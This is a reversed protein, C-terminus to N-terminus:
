NIWRFDVIGVLVDTYQERKFLQKILLSITETNWCIWHIRFNPIQVPNLLPTYKYFHPCPILFGCFLTFNVGARTLPDRVVGLCVSLGSGLFPWASSHPSPHPQGWYLQAQLFAARRGPGMHPGSQSAGQTVLCTSFLDLPAFPLVRPCIRLVITLKEFPM